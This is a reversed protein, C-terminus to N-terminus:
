DGSPTPRRSIAFGWVLEADVPRGDAHRVNEHLTVGDPSRDNGIEKGLKAAGRRAKDCARGAVGPGDVVSGHSTTRGADDRQSWLALSCSCAM